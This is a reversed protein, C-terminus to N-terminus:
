ILSSLYRWYLLKRSKLHDTWSESNLPVVINVKNVLYMSIFFHECKNVRSLHCPILLYRWYLLKRSKLHDPWSESNLPVVINVKNVLYMSISFHEGKNVRSLHCLIWLYRWYILKRSKLHDPWSESNLPVVINVLYLM